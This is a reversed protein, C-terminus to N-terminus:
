LSIFLRILLYLNISGLSNVVIVNRPNVREINVRSFFFLPVRSRELRHSCLATIYCHRKDHLIENSDRYITIFSEIANIWRSM